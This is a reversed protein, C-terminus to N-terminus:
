CILSIISFIIVKIINASILQYSTFPIGIDNIRDYETLLIDKENKNLINNEEIYEKAIYKAKQMADNELNIRVIYQIVGLYILIIIHMNAYPLKKILALICIIPFYLLYINSIIFNAWLTKKDQCSHICEHSITQLKMYKQKFKGITISNNFITYLCSSSEPEIKLKVNSKNLKKLVDKCITEDNPFKNSIEELESLNTPELNKLTKFKINLFTKLSILFFISCIIVIIELM